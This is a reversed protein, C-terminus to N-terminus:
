LPIVEDFQRIPQITTFANIKTMLEKMESTAMSAGFKEASKIWINAVCLFKPAPAGPTALGKRVEFRVCNDGLIKAYEPILTKAYLEFDFSAVEKHPYLVTACFLSKSINYDM